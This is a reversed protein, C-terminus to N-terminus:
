VLSPNQNSEAIIATDLPDDRIGYMTLIRVWDVHKAAQKADLPEAGPVPDYGTVVQRAPNVLRVRRPLLDAMRNVAEQSEPAPHWAKVSAEGSRFAKRRCRSLMAGLRM